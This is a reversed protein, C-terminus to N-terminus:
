ITEKRRHLLIDQGVIEQSFLDDRTLRLKGVIEPDLNINVYVGSGDYFYPKYTRKAAATRKNAETDLTTFYDYHRDM